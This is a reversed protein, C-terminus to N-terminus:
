ESHLVSDIFLKQFVEKEEKNLENWKTTKYYNSIPNKTHKQYTSLLKVFDLKQIAELPDNSPKIYLIIYMLVYSPVGM